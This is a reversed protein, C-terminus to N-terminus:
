ASRICGNAGNNLWNNLEDFSYHGYLSHDIGYGPNYGYVVEDPASRNKWVPWIHGFSRHRGRFAPEAARQLEDVRSRQHLEVNLEFDAQAKKMAARHEPRLLQTNCVIVGSLRPHRQDALYLGAFAGHGAHLAAHFHELKAVLKDGRVKFGFSSDDWAGALDKPDAFRSFSLEPHRLLQLESGRATYGIAAVAEGQEKGRQLVIGDLDRVISRPALVDPVAKLQRAKLARAVDASKLPAHGSLETMLTDSGWEHESTADSGTAIAFIEGKPDMLVAPQNGKRM